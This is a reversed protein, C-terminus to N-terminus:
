RSIKNESFMENHRPELDEDSKVSLQAQFGRRQSPYHKPICLDGPRTWTRKNLGDHRIKVNRDRQEGGNIM